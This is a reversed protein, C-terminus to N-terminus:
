IQEFVVQDWENQSDYITVSARKLILFRRGGRKLLDLSPLNAEITLLFSYNHLNEQQLKPTKTPTTPAIIPSTAM